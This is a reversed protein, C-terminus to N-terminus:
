RPLASEISTVCAVLRKDVDRLRVETMRSRISAVFVAGLPSGARDRIPRWIATVDLAASGEDLAPGRERAAEIRERLARETLRYRRLQPAIAKLVVKVGAESRAALI